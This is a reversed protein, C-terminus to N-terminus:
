QASRWAFDSRAATVCLEAAIGILIILAEGADAVRDFFIRRDPGVM